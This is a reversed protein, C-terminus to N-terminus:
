RWVQQWPVSLSRLKEEHFLSGKHIALVHDSRDAVARSHTVVIVQFPNEMTTMYHKLNRFVNGVISPNGKDFYEDLLLVSPFPSFEENKERVGSNLRMLALVLEFCHKQTEMLSEVKVDTPIKMTEIAGRYVEAIYKKASADECSDILLHCINGVTRSSDYTEYFFENVYISRYPSSCDVQGGTVRLTGDSLGITRRGYEPGLGDAINRKHLGKILTSKGSGPPGVVATIDDFRATVREIGITEDARQFFALIGPRKAYRISFEKVGSVRRMGGDSALAYCLASTILLLLLM